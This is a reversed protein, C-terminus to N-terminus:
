QGKACLQSALYETGVFPSIIAVFFSCVPSCREYRGEYILVHVM